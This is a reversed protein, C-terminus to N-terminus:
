SDIEPRGGRDLAARLELFRQIMAHEIARTDTKIGRFDPSRAVRIRGRKM